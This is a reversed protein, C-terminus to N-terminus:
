RVVSFGKGSAAGVCSGSGCARPFGERNVRSPFQEIRERDAALTLLWHASLCDQRFRDNVAEIFAHGTPKAPRSLDPTM